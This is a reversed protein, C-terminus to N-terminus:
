MAGYGANTPVSEYQQRRQYVTYGAFAAVSAIVAVYAAGAQGQALEAGLQARRPARGRGLALKAEKKMFDECSPKGGSAQPYSCEVPASKWMPSAILDNIEKGKAQAEQADSDIMCQAIASLDCGQFAAKIESMKDKMSEEEAAHEDASMDSPYEHHPDDATHTMDQTSPYEHHSDDATHTTTHHMDHTSTAYFHKTGEQDQADDDHLMEADWDDFAADAKHKADYYAKTAKDVAKDVADKHDQLKKEASEVDAKAKKIAKDDGSKEAEDLKDMAEHVAKKSAEHDAKAHKAEIMAHEASKEARKAAKKMAASPKGAARRVFKKIGGGLTPESHVDDRGIMLPESLLGKIGEVADQDPTDGFLKDGALCKGLTAQKICDTPFKPPASSGALAGPLVCAAVAGVALATKKRAARSKRAM